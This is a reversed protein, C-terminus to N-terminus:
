LVGVRFCSFGNFLAVFIVLVLSLRKVCCVCAFRMAVLCGAVWVCSFLIGELDM